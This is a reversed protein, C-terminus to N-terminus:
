SGGGMIETLKKYALRVLWFGIIADVAFLYLDHATNLWPMDFTSFDYNIPKLLTQGMIELGPFTITPNTPPRFSLIQDLVDFLIAFPFYLVGFHDQMWEDWENFYHTFYSIQQGTEPDTVDGPIFLNKLGDIIGTLLKDFFGSIRDGLQQFFGKQQNTQNQIEDKVAQNGQQIQNKIEDTSQQIEGTIQNTGQQIGGMIADTTPDEITVDAYSQILMGINTRYDYINPYTSAYIQVEDVNQIQKLEKPTFTIAVWQTDSQSVKPPTVNKQVYNKNSDILSIGVSTFESETPESFSAGQGFRFTLTYDKHSDLAYFWNDDCDIRVIWSDIQFLGEEYPLYGYLSYNTGTMGGYYPAKDYYEGHVNHYRIHVVDSLDNIFTSTTVSKAGVSFISCSLLLSVCLLCIFVRKATKM